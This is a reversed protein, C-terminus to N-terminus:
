FRTRASVTSGSACGCPRVRPPPQDMRPSKSGHCFLTFGARGPFRWGAWDRGVRATDDAVLDNGATQHLKGALAMQGIQLFAALPAEDPVTVGCPMRDVEKAMQAMRGAFPGTLRQHQLRPLLKDNAREIAPLALGTRALM